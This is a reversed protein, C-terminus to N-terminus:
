RRGFAAGLAVGVGAGIAMWVAMNDSTIGIVSGIAVGLILGLAVMRGRRNKSSNNDDNMTKVRAYICINGLLGGCAKTPWVATQLDV